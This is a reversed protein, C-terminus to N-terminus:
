VPQQRKQNEIWALTCRLSGYLRGRIETLRPFALKEDRRWRWLTMASVGGCIKWIKATPILEDPEAAPAAAVPKGAARMANPALNSVAKTPRRRRKAM